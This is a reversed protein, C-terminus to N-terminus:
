ERKQEYDSDDSPLEHKRLPSFNSSALWKDTSEEHYERKCPMKKILEGELMKEQCVSCLYERGKILVKTKLNRVSTISDEAPITRRNRSQESNSNSFQSLYLCMKNFCSQHTTFEKAIFNKVRKISYFINHIINLGIWRKAELREIANAIKRRRAKGTPSFSSIGEKQFSGRFALQAATKLLIIETQLMVSSKGMGWEGLIGVNIPSQVLPNSFLAALGIAFPMRGLTDQGAPIDAEVEVGVSLAIRRLVDQVNRKEEETFLYDMLKKERILAISAGRTLCELTMDIDGLTAAVMLMNEALTLGHYYTSRKKIEDMEQKLYEDLSSNSRLGIGDASVFLLLKRHESSECKDLLLKAIKVADEGDAEAAFRLARKGDYDREKLPHAGSELLMEVVKCHGGSAAKHLATQGLVDAAVVYDKKRKQEPIVSLLKEVMKLNGIGAAVHLPTTKSFDEFLVQNTAQEGLITDLVDPDDHPGSVAYYIASQGDRDETDINTNNELILRCLEKRGLLAAVHLVNRGYKDRASANEWSTRGQREDFLLREIIRCAVDEEAGEAAYHLATKGEYDPEFPDAGENLLKEVLDENCMRSAERLNHKAEKMTPLRRPNKRLAM